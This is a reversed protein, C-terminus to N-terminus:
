HADSKGFCATQEARLKDMLRNPPSEVQEYTLATDKAIDEKVRCGEALGMPLLAEMLCADSNEL